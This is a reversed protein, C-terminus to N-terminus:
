AKKSAFLFSANSSPSQKSAHLSPDRHEMNFSVWSLLSLLAQLSLFLVPFQFPKPSLTEEVLASLAKDMPLSSTKGRERPPAPLQAWSGKGPSCM